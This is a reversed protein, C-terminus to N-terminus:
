LIFKQGTTFGHCFTFGFNKMDDLLVGGDGLVLQCGLQVERAAGDGHMNGIQLLLAVKEALAVNDILARIDEAHARCVYVDVAPGFLRDDHVVGVGTMHVGRGAAHRPIDAFVERAETHADLENGGDAGVHVCVLDAALALRSADVNGVEIDCISM